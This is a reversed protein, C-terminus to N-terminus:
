TGTHQRTHPRTYAYTPDAGPPLPCFGDSGWLLLLHFFPSFCPPLVSLQAKPLFCSVLTHLSVQPCTTLLDWSTLVSCGSPVRIPWPCHRRAWARGCVKCSPCTRDPHFPCLTCQPEAPSPPAGPSPGPHCVAAPCRVHAPAPGTHKSSITGQGKSLGPMGAGGSTHPLSSRAKGEPDVCRPHRHPRGRPAASSGLANRCHGRACDSCPTM